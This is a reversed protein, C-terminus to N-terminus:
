EKLTNVEKGAIDSLNQQVIDIYESYSAQNNEINDMWSNILLSTKLDCPSLGDYVIDCCLYNLNLLNNELCEQKSFSKNYTYLDIDIFKFNDLM